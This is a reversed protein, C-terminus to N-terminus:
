ESNQFTDPVLFSFVQHTPTLIYDYVLPGLRMRIGELHVRGVAATSHLTVLNLKLQVQFSYQQWGKKGHSGRAAREKGWGQRDLDCSSKPNPQLRLEEAPM